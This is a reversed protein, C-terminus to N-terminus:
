GRPAIVAEFAPYARLPALMPEMHLQSLEYGLGRTMADRLGAVARDLNGEHALVIALWYRSFADDRASIIAKASDAEARLGLHVAAIARAAEFSPEGADTIAFSPLLARADAWRRANLLSSVYGYDAWPSKGDRRARFWEIALEWAAKADANHGHADLEAAADYMASGVSSDALTATTRLQQLRSMVESTRGLAALASLELSVFSANGPFRDQGLLAVKLQRDFSGIWHLAVALSIHFYGNERMAPHNMNVSDLTAVAERFRGLPIAAQGVQFATQSSRPAFRRLARSAEYAGFADGRCAAAVRDFRLREFTPLKTRRPELARLISDTVACEGMAAHAFTIVVYPLMFNSDLALARHAHALATRNDNRLHAARAQVYENYADFSPPQSSLGTYQNIRPDVAAALVGLIHARLGDIAPMPASALASINTISRVVESTNADIIRASFRVSDKDRYVSGAIALSAELKRAVDVPNFTSSGAKVASPEILDVVGSQRIENAVWEAAMNAMPGLSSDGSKNEFPLVVVRPADLSPADARNARSVLVAAVVAAISCFAAVVIATRREKTAPKAAKGVPNPTGDRLAALAAGIDRASQPRAAPDKELLAMVLGALEPRVTPEVELIPVPSATVHAALLQQPTRNGYPGKGTLLEYAMVGLSYLDARHDTALDGAVQEPAMYFPTGISTGTQTLVGAAIDTGTANAIAKAIGFDTVVAHGGSLLVNDPKLDRHVISQAHAHDLAAAVDSLVGIAEYEPLRGTRQLRARLSEGAVYPMTYYPLDGAEGATLVPVIFPHQLGATVLVERRFRETSIAGALEPALLKVVVRRKLSPETALFVRSMAGGGLERELLYSRALSSQVFDFIKDTL